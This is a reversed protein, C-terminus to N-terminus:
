FSSSLSRLFDRLDEMAQSIISRKRTVRSRGGLYHIKAMKLEGNEVKIDRRRRSSQKVIYRGGLEM